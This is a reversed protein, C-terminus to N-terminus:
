TEDTCPISRQFYLPRPVCRCMKLQIQSNKNFKRVGGRLEVMKYLGMMHKRASEHDGTLANMMVLGTVVIITIDSTALRSDTLRQQLGVLTKHAHQMQVPSSEDGRLWDFYAQTSWLLSHCYLPDAALYEVWISHNLDFMPCLEIPYM